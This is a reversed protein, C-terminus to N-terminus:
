YRSFMVDVSPTIRYLSLTTDGESRPSTTFVTCTAWWPMVIIVARASDETNQGPMDASMLVVRFFSHASGDSPARVAQLVAWGVSGPPRGRELLTRPSRQVCPRM